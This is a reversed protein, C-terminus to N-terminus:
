YIEFQSLEGSCQITETPVIMPSSASISAVLRSAMTELSPSGGFSFPSERTPRAGPGVRPCRLHVGNYSHVKSRVYFQTVQNLERALTEEFTEKLHPPDPPSWGLMWDVSWQSTFTILNFRYIYNAGGCTFILIKVNKRFSGTTGRGNHFGVPM